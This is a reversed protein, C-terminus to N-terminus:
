DRLTLLAVSEVHGTHPFMDVAQLKELTYKESLWQIDRAQTAPNCSIYVIRPTELDLMTRVVSEHMGARPPDTIIVDAKGYKQIFAQDFVDKMDGCIFHANTIGNLQANEHADRIAAEVNEIGIVTHCHKALYLAISGLGTYFDYVRDEPKIGAFALATDYLVKTQLTNTQFFSQPGIKYKVEGLVEVIYGPGSWIIVELDSISDNGKSNVVFCLTSIVPFQATLATFLEDIRQLMDYRVCLIVMVEGLSSTRVILNRLYGEGTKINYYDWNREKTFDRVFNRIANSPDAQLLCEQIDVVQAFAKPRHFGLGPEHVPITDLNMEEQTLWRKNSFTFELKNRYYYPNECGIIPLSEQPIVKGIRRIAQLVKDEKEHLQAPYDYHQWKCGGCIGFHTCPPEVRHPSPTHVQKLSGFYCGKKKQLALFDVVDGPVAGEVFCVTGDDARGVAFSGEAIGTIKINPLIRPRFRAM